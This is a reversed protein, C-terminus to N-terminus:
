YEEPVFATTEDIASADALLMVLRDLGLANGASPPMSALASLFTEPMPYVQLGKEKRRKLEAEFRNRQEEPDVLETFGNCIEIGCIYAEFREALHPRDHRRRALAGKEAPYDYLFVPRSRDLGTEIDISILEDFTEDAVAEAMEKGAHRHFAEAVTIRPWPPAPDIGIGQYSLSKNGLVETCVFWVLEETRAMLDKYDADAEYWELMSFEPLHLKGREDARFTRCIQFIRSYGAALLRKMFLEPSTQLYAGDAPVAEIHAEPAPAPIRVPTEVELFDRTRFFSRVACLLKSRLALNPYIRRQRPEKM